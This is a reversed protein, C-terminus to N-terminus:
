PLHTAAPLLCSFCFESGVGIRSNVTITGGFLQAIRQAIGLGLGAGSRRKTLVEEGLVFPELVADLLEPPIGAGTDRVRFALRYLNRGNETCHEQRTVQLRVEGEETNRIANAVLNEVVQRLRIADGVLADPVDDAVFWNFHLNKWRAQPDLVAISDRLTNRLSFRDARLAVAGEELQSMDLMNNILTLLDGGAKRIMELCETQEQNVPSALLLESLGLIGNLPTRLEHSMNALLQARSRQVSEAIAQQCTSAGGVVHENGNPQPLLTMRELAMHARHAYLVPRTVPNPVVDWAGATLLTTVDGDSVTVALLPVSPAHVAWSQLFATAADLCGCRVDVVVTGCNKWPPMLGAFATLDSHEVQWGRRVFPLALLDTDAPQGCHVLLLYPQRSM